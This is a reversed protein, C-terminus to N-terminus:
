TTRYIFSLRGFVNNIFHDIISNRPQLLSVAVYQLILPTPQIAILSHHAPENLSALRGGVSSINATYSQSYVRSDTQM